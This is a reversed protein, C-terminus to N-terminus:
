DWSVTGTKGSPGRPRATPWMNTMPEHQKHVTTTVCQQQLFFLNKRKERERKKVKM